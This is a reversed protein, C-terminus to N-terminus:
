AHEGQEHGAIQRAYRERRMRREAFLRIRGDFFLIVLLIAGAILDNWHAAIKLFVLADTISTMFFVSMVIGISKKKCDYVIIEAFVCVCVCVSDCECCLM